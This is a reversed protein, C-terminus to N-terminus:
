DDADRRRYLGRSADPIRHAPRGTLWGLMRGCFVPLVSPNTWSMVALYYLGAPIRRLGTRGGRASNRVAETVLAERLLRLKARDLGHERAWRLSVSLYRRVGKRWYPNLRTARNAAHRRYVAIPEDICGAVLDGTAAM